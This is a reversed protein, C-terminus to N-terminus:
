HRTTVDERSSGFSYRMGGGFNHTAGRILFGRASSTIAYQGFVIFKGVRLQAGVIAMANAKSAADFARDQAEIFEGQTTFSESIPFYPDLVQTLAFGGGIYPQLYTEMPFAVLAASIRRIQNFGVQRFGTGCNPNASTQGPVAVCAGADVLLFFQDYGLYLATREKTILWHGGVGPDYYFGQLNTQYFMATGQAGWFWQHRWSGLVAPGRRPSAAVVSLGASGVIHGAWTSGPLGTSPTFIGRGELRLALRDTVFFRAGLGGHASHDTFDYPATKGVIVLSYGGLGYVEFSARSLVNYTLSASAAQFTASLTGPFNHPTQYSGEIELSARNGFFYGIRLGGGLQNALNFLHDYRTFTGFAGFELQGSHQAVGTAALGSLLAGLITLVRM